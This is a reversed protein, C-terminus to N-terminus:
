KCNKCDCVGSVCFCEEDTQLLGSGKCYYCIGRHYDGTAHADCASSEDLICYATADNTCGETSCKAGWYPVGNADYDSGLREVVPEAKMIAIRRLQSKSLEESV